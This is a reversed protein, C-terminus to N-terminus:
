KILRFLRKKIGRFSFLSPDSYFGGSLPFEEGERSYSFTERPVVTKKGSRDIRMYVGFEPILDKFYKIAFGMPIGASVMEKEAERPVIYKIKELHWRVGGIQGTWFDPYLTCIHYWFEPTYFMRHGHLFANRHFGYPTWFEITAGDAAVRSVENLFFVPDEVHELFHASYFYDASQDPFPMKERSLDLVHDVGPFKEIDVGVFGEKKASGCGADIKLM